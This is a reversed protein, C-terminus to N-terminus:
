VTAPHATRMRRVLVPVGFALGAVLTTSVLDNRYFPLGAVYSLILGGFNQPYRINGLWAAFNSILFFSTPGLIVASAFRPFSTRSRLLIRGLVMAAVYWMWTPLYDQWHFAYHYTFLTLYFDTAVLVALPALMERWPRRAGFYLLFGGVATFNLWGAHPLVRSLVAVLLLLYAPM